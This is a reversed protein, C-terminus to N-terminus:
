AAEETSQCGEGALPLLRRTESDTCKAGTRTVGHERWNTARLNRDLPLAQFGAVLPFEVPRLFVEDVECRKDGLELFQFRVYDGMSDLVLVLGFDPSKMEGGRGIFPDVQDRAIHEVVDSSGEIIEGGAKDRRGLAAVHHEWDHVLINPVYGELLPLVRLSRVHALPPLGGDLLHVGSRDFDKLVQLREPLSITVWFEMDEVHKVPERVFVSMALQMYKSPSQSVDLGGGDIVLSPQEDSIWERIEGAERIACYEVEGWVGDIHMEVAGRCDDDAATLISPM